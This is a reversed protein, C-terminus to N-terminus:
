AAMKLGRRKIDGPAHRILSRRRRLRTSMAEYINLYGAAHRRASIDHCRATQNMDADVHRRMTPSEHLHEDVLRFLLRMTM